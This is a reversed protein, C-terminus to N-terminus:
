DGGCLRHVGDKGWMSLCDFSPLQPHPAATDWISSQTNVEQWPIGVAPALPLPLWNPMSWYVGLKIFNVFPPANHTTRSSREEFLIQSQTLTDSNPYINARENPIKSAPYANPAESSSSCKGHTHQVWSSICFIAPKHTSTITYLTLKACKQLGVYAHQKSEFEQQHYTFLLIQLCASSKLHAQKGGM